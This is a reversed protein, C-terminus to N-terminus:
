YNHIGSKAPYTQKLYVIMRYLVQSPFSHFAQIVTGGSAVYYMKELIRNVFSAEVSRHHIELGFRLTPM